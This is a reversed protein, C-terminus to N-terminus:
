EVTEGKGVGWIRARAIWGRMGTIEVRCWRATCRLLKGIVGDEVEAITLADARAKRKLAQRAGTILATRKGSLLSKHVWGETGQWDRIKRWTDFEAVIQVPLNRRLYVWDVPYRVGPGTRVNVEGSRLSAFRPLPLGTGTAATVAAFSVLTLIM